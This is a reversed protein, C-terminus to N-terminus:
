THTASRWSQEPLRSPRQSCRTGGCNREGNGIECQLSGPRLEQTPTTQWLSAPSPHRLATTLFALSHATSRAPFMISLWDTLFGIVRKGQIFGQVCLLQPSAVCPLSGLAPRPTMTARCRPLSPLERPLSPLERPGAAGTCSELDQKLPTFAFNTEKPSAARLTGQLGICQLAWLCLYAHVCGGNPQPLWQGATGRMHRSNARPLWKSASGRTPHGNVLPLHKSPSGACPPRKGWAAM